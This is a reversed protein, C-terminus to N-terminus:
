METFWDDFHANGIGGQFCQLVRSWWLGFGWVLPEVSRRGVDWKVCVLCGYTVRDYTCRTFDMRHKDDGRQLLKAFRRRSRTGPCFELNPGRARWPRIVGDSWCGGQCSRSASQRSPVRATARDKDVLLLECRLPSHPTFSALRLGLLALSRKIGSSSALRAASRTHASPSAWCLCQPRRMIQDDDKMLSPYVSVIVCSGPSLLAPPFNLQIKRNPGWLSPLDNLRLTLCNIFHYLFINKQNLHFLISGNFM